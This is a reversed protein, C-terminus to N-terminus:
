ALSPPGRPATHRPPAESLSTQAVTPTATTQPAADALSLDIPAPLPTAGGSIAFPCPADSISTPGPHGHHGHHASGPIVGDCFVLQTDGHVVVPMFGVPILARAMVAVLALAALCERMRGHRLGAWNRNM